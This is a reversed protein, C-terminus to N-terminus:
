RESKRFDTNANTYMKDLVTSNRWLKIEAKMEILSRLDKKYIELLEEM